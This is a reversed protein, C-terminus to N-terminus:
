ARLRNTMWVADRRARAQEVVADIDGDIRASFEASAELKAM